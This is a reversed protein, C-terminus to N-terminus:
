EEITQLYRFLTSAATFAAFNAVSPGMVMRACEAPPQSDLTYRSTLMWGTGLIKWSAEHCHLM